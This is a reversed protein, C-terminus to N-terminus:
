SAVFTRLWVPVNEISPPAQHPDVNCPDVNCARHNLSVLGFAAGDFGYKTLLETDARSMVKKVCARALYSFFLAANSDRSGTTQDIEMANSNAAVTKRTSKNDTETERNEERLHCYHHNSEEDTDAGYPDDEEETDYGFVEDEIGTARSIVAEPLPLDDSTKRASIRGIENEGGGVTAQNRVEATTRSSQIQNGSVRDNGCHHRRRRRSGLGETSIWSGHIEAIAGTSAWEVVVHDRTTTDGGELLFAPHEVATEHDGDRAWILKKETSMRRNM